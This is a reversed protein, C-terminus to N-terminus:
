SIASRLVDFDTRPGGCLWGAFATRAGASVRTVRHAPGLLRPLTAWLHQDFHERLAVRETADPRALTIRRGLQLM